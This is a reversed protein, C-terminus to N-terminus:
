NKKATDDLTKGTKELVRNGLHVLTDLTVDRAWEDADAKPDEIGMACVGAFAKVQAIRDEDDIGPLLQMVEVFQAASLVRLKVTRDWPKYHYEIVPRDLDALM